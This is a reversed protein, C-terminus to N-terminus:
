RVRGKDLEVLEGIVVEIEPSSRKWNRDFLPKYGQGGHEEKEFAGVDILREQKWKALGKPRKM